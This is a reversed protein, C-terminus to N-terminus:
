IVTCATIRDFISNLELAFGMVDVVLLLLLLLLLAVCVDDNVVVVVVAVVTCQYM